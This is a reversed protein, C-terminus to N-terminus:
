GREGAEPNPAAPSRLCVLCGPLVSVDDLMVLELVGKHTKEARAEGLPQGAADLVQLVGGPRPTGFGSALCWIHCPAGGEASVRFVEGCGLETLLRFYRRGLLYTRASCAVGFGACWAALMFPNWGAIRRIWSPSGARQAKEDAWVVLVFKQAAQATAGKFSLRLEYSGSEAQPEARVEGRWMGNGFWYGTFFGELNFHLPANEPTFHVQVDSNLPNKLASPGSLFVAQGSLIEVHDSGARMGVLLGDILGLLAVALLLASVRGVLRQRQRTQRCADRLPTTSQQIM